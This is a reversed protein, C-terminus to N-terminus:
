GDGFTVVLKGKCNLQDCLAELTRLEYIARVIRKKGGRATRWVLHELGRGPRQAM